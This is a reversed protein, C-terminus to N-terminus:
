FRELISYLLQLSDTCVTLKIRLKYQLTNKPESRTSKTSSDNGKRNRLLFM